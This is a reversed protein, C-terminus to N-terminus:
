SFLSEEERQKYIPIRGDAPFPIHANGVINIHTRVEFDESYVALEGRIDEIEEADEDSNDRLDFFLDIRVDTYSFSIMRMNPSIAGICSQVVFATLANQKNLKDFDIM